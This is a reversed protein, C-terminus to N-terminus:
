CIESAAIASESLTNMQSESVARCALSCARSRKEDVSFSYSHGGGSRASWYPTSFALSGSTASTIVCSIIFSPGGVPDFVVRAGLGRTIEAVRAVLDHEDTVVVHDAGHDILAQRKARTRTTAIVTAGVAKAVQFAAIGVSSSAATVIVFDGATLKAQEILAGWATLYKMWSAAAAEFSITGRINSSTALSCM